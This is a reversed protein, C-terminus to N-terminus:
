VMVEVTDSAPPRDILMIGLLTMAVGLILWSNWPESKSFCTMGIVAAMAVQSANLVSAHVVTTLQLGKAIGFFGILNFFGAGLLWFWAQPTTTLMGEFGMRYISIPWMTMVGMGAVIFLLTSQAIRLNSSRRMAISLSAFVTGAMCSSAVAFAVTAPLSPSNDAKSVRGAADAGFGLFVLAIILL